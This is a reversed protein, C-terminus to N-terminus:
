TIIWKLLDEAEKNQQRIVSECEKECIIKRVEIGRAESQQIMNQTGAGGPFAIVLNPQGEDLMQKNRIPGASKPYKKWDAPFRWNEINNAIVFLHALKDAGKAAGEIIILNKSGYKARYECLVSNVEMRNNFDRGGTVLIKFKPPNTM